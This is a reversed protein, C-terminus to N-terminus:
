EGKSLSKYLDEFIADADTAEIRSYNSDGFRIIIENSGVEHEIATANAFNIVVNQGSITNRFLYFMDKEKRIQPGFRAAKGSM